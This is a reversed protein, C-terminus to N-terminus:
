FKVEEWTPFASKLSAFAKLSNSETTNQSLLTRVLGDLVSEKEDLPESSVANDHGNSAQSSLRQERYKAFEKPFGHLALLDDRVSVCEERTPRAHNPYPDKPTTKTPPKPNHDAEAQQKRKRSKPMTTTTAGGQSDKKLREGATFHTQDFLPSTM